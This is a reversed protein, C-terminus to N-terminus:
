TNNNKTPCKSRAFTLVSDNPYVKPKKKKQVLRYYMGFIGMLIPPAGLNLQTLRGIGLEKALLLPSFLCRWAGWLTLLLASQTAKARGAWCLPSSCSFPNIRVLFTLGSNHPFLLERSCHTIQLTCKGAEVTHLSGPSGSM